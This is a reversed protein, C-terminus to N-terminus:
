DTWLADNTSLAPCLLAKDPGLPTPGTVWDQGAGPGLVTNVPIAPSQGLSKYPSNGGGLPGPITGKLAGRGGAWGLLGVQGPTSLCLCSKAAWAPNEM